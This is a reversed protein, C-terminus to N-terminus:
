KLRPARVYSMARAYLSMTVTAGGIFSYDGENLSHTEFSRMDEVRPPTSRSYGPTMDINLKHIVGHESCSHTNKRSGAWVVAISTSAMDDPQNLGRCKRRADACAIKTGSDMENEAPLHM